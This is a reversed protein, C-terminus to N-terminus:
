GAASRRGPNRVRRHRRDGYFLALLQPPHNDDHEFRVVQGRERKRSLPLSPYM